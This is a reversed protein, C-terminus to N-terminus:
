HETYRNVALHVLPAATSVSIPQIILTYLGLRRVPGGRAGDRTGNM